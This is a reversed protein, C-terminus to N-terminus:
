QTSTAGRPEPLSDAYVHTRSRPPNCRTPSRCHVCVGPPSATVSWRTSLTPCLLAPHPTETSRETEGGARPADPTSSRSDPPTDGGKRGLERCCTFEVLEPYRKGTQNVTGNGPARALGPLWSTGLSYNSPLRTPHSNRLTALTPRAPTQTPIHCLIQTM